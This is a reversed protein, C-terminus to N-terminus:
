FVEKRKSDIKRFDSGTQIMRRRIEETQRGIRDEGRLIDVEQKRRRIIFIM